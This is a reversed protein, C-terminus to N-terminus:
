KSVRTNRQGNVKRLTVKPVSDEEPKDMWAAYREDEVSEDIGHLIHWMEARMHNVIRSMRWVLIISTAVIAVEIANYIYSFKFVLPLAVALALIPVGWPHITIVLKRRFVDGPMRLRRRRRGFMYGLGAFFLDKVFKV